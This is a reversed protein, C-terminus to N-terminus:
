NAILINLYIMSIIQTLYKKTELLYFSNNEIIFYQDISKFRSFLALQNNSINDFFLIYISLDSDIIIQSILQYSFIFDDNNIM